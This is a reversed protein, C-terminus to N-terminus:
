QTRSLLLSLAYTNYLHHEFNMLFFVQVIFYLIKMNCTQLAMRAGAAVPSVRVCDVGRDRDVDVGRDVDAVRRYWARTVAFRVRLFRRRLMVYSPGPPSCLRGSAPLSHGPASKVLCVSCRLFPVPIWGRSHEYQLLAQATRLDLLTVHIHSNHRTGKHTVHLLLYWLHTFLSHNVFWEGITNVIPINKKKSVYLYTHRTSIYKM